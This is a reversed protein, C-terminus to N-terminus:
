SLMVSADSSVSVANAPLQVDMGAGLALSKSNADADVFTITTNEDAHVLGYFNALPQDTLTGQITSFTAQFCQFSSLPTNGGITQTAM